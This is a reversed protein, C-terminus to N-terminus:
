PPAISQRLSEVIEESTVTASPTGAAVSPAVTTSQQQTTTIDPSQSTNHKASLIAQADSTEKFYQALSTSSIIPSKREPQM